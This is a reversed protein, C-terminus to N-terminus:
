IDYSHEKVMEKAINNANHFDEALSNRMEEWRKGTAMQNVRWNNYETQTIKGAEKKAQMDADKRQFNQLYDFLKDQVEKEATEYEKSIRKELEELEKETLKHGYDM